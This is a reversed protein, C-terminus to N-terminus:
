FILYLNWRSCHKDCAKYKLIPLKMGQNKLRERVYQKAYTSLELCTQQISHCIEWTQLNRVTHKFNKRAAVMM